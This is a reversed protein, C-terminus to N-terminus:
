MASLERSEDNSRKRREDRVARREQACGGPGPANGSRGAGVGQRGRRRGWQRGARRVRYRWRWSSRRRARRPETSLACASQCGHAWRSRPSCPPPPPQRCHRRQSCLLRLPLRHPHHHPHPRPRPSKRPRQRLRPRRRAPERPRGAGRGRERRDRGEGAGMERSVSVAPAHRATSNCSPSTVHASGAQQVCYLRDGNNANQNLWGGKRPRNPLPVCSPLVRMVTVRVFAVGM